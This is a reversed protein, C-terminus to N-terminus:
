LRFRSSAVTSAEDADDCDDAALVGDCDGDEEILTNSDDEGCYVSLDQEEEEETKEEPEGCAFLGLALM